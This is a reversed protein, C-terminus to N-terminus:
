QEKYVKEQLYDAKHRLVKLENELEILEKHVVPESLSGGKIDLHKVLRWETRKQDGRLRKNEKELTLIRRMDEDCQRFLHSLYKWDTVKDYKKSVSQLEKATYRLQKEANKIEDLVVQLKRAEKNREVAAQDNAKLMKVKVPDHHQILFDITGNLNKLVGQLYENIKAQRSRENLAGAKGNGNPSLRLQYSGDGTVLNVEDRIRAAHAQLNNLNIRGAVHFEPM